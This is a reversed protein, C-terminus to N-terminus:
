GIEMRALRFLRRFSFLSPDYGAAMCLVEFHLVRALGQPHLQGFSVRYYELINLVFTSFSHRLNSFEFHKCYLAVSGKPCQDISKDLSPAELNFRLDIGWKQCFAEVEEQTLYSFSTSQDKRAGMLFSSQFFFFHFPFIFSVQLVSSKKHHFKFPILLISLTTAEQYILLYIPRVIIM